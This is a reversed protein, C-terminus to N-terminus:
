LNSLLIQSVRLVLETTLALKLAKFACLAETSWLFGDKKTLATLPRAIIGFNRVFRRYYGTLGLFGRFRNLMLPSQGSKSRLIKKVEFEYHGLHTHFTTKPVDHNAVRIQYYDSRLDLKSFVKAGYLEDLLEDINPILYKGAVTIKNLARYDVCMRWTTRKAYSCCPSSFPSNSPQILGLDLLQQVQKEIENKQSHPCRYPRINPPTSNPLLTISHTQTRVLPLATPEEFISAHNDLITQLPSPINLGQDTEVALHQFTSSKQPGSDIGQFKYKKGGITFIMFM